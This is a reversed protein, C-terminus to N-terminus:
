LKVIGHQILVKMVKLISCRARGFGTLGLRRIVSQSYERAMRDTVDMREAIDKFVLCEGYRLSIFELERSTFEVEVTLKPPGTPLRAAM